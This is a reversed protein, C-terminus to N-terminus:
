VIVELKCFRYQLTNTNRFLVLDGYYDDDMAATGAVMKFHFCLALASVFGVGTGKGKLLSYDGRKIFGMLWRTSRGTLQVNPILLEKSYQKYVFPYLHKPGRHQQEVPGHYESFEDGKSAKLDKYDQASPICLMANDKPLGEGLTTVCIPILARTIDLRCLVEDSLLQNYQTIRSLFSKFKKLLQTDRLVFFTSINSETPSSSSLLSITETGTTTKSKTETSSEQKLDGKTVKETKTTTTTRLSVFPKKETEIELVTTSAPSTTTSLNLQIGTLVNFNLAWDSVLTSWPIFHQCQVGLPKYSVRKAPPVRHQFM